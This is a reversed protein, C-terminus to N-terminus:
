DMRHTYLAQEIKRSSYLNSLYGYIIVKLMMRPHYSSCGGGSYKKILPEIDINDVVQNVIRVSHNAPIMEELSPPLLLNQNPSYDKFVIKSRINTQM